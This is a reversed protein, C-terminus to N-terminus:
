LDLAADPHNALIIATTVIQGCWFFVALSIGIIRVSM